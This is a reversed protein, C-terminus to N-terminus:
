SLWTSPRIPLPNVACTAKSRLLRIPLEDHTEHPSHMIEHGVPARVLRVLTVGGGGGPAPTTGGSSSIWSGRNAPTECGNRRNLSFATMRRVKLFPSTMQRLSFVARGGEVDLLALDVDEDLRAEVVGLGPASALGVAPHEAQDLPQGGDEFAALLVVAVALGILLVDVDVGGDGQLIVVRDVGELGAVDEALHRAHVRVGARGRDPRGLVHRNQFHAAVDEVDELSALTGLRHEVLAVSAPCDVVVEPAHGDERGHRLVGGLVGPEAVEEALADRKLPLVVALQDELLVVRGVGEVQDPGPEHFDGLAVHPRLVDEVVEPRAPEEALDAQEGVQGLDLGVADVGGPSGGRARREVVDVEDLERGLRELFDELQEGSTRRWTTSSAM